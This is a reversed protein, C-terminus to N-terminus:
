YRQLHTIKIQYYIANSREIEVNLEDFSEACDGGQLIWAEGTQADAVQQRLRDVEWSTVLPPLTSLEDLVAAVEDPDDYIPQQHAPLSKWNEPTWVSRSSAHM